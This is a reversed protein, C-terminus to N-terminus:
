LRLTMKRPFTVPCSSFAGSYNGTKQMMPLSMVGTTKKPRLGRTASLSRGEVWTPHTPFQTARHFMVPRGPGNRQVPAPMLPSAYVNGDWVAIGRNARAIWSLSTAETFASELDAQYSWLLKGSIADIAVVKTYAGGLYIVGDVVIPTTPTGDPIPLDVAWALSLNEVTDKNIQALPSYHEGKFNGGKLFWNEGSASEALVRQNSVNAVTQAPLTAPLLLFACLLFHCPLGVVRGSIVFQNEGRAPRFQVLNIWKM